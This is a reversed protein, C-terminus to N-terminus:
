SSRPEEVHGSSKARWPYLNDFYQRREGIKGEAWNIANKVCASLSEEEYAYTFEEMFDFDKFYDTVMFSSGRGEERLAATVIRNTSCIKSEVIQGAPFSNELLVFRCLGAFTRVKDENSLEPIDPHEKVLLGDYGLSNVFHRIQRLRNLEEGTDKGLILVRRRRSANIIRTLGPDERSEAPVPSLVSLLLYQYAQLVPVLRESLDGKTSDISLLGIVESRNAIPMVMVSQIAPRNVLRRRKTWAKGFVHDGMQAIVNENSQCAYGSISHTANLNIALNRIPIPGYEGRGYQFTILNEKKIVRSLRLRISKTFGLAELADFVIEVSSEEEGTTSRLRIATERLIDLQKKSSPLKMVGLAGAANREQEM